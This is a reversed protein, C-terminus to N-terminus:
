AVEYSATLVPKDIPSFGLVPLTAKEDFRARKAKFEDLKKIKYKGDGNLKILYERVSSDM